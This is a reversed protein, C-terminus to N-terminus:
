LFNESPYLFSIFFPTTPDAVYYRTKRYPLTKFMNSDVKNLAILQYARIQIWQNKDYTSENYQDIFHCILKTIFAHVTFYSWLSYYLMLPELSCKFYRVGLAFPGGLKISTSCFTMVQM